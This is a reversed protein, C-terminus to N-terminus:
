VRVLSLTNILDHSTMNLDEMLEQNEAVFGTLISKRTNEIFEEQM